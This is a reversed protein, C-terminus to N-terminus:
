GNRERKADDECGLARLQATVTLEDDELGFYAACGGADLVGTVAHLALWGKGSEPESALQPVKAPYLLCVDDDRALMTPGRDTPKGELVPRLDLPAWSTPGPTDDHPKDGNTSALGEALAVAILRSWM